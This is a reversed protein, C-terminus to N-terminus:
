QSIVAMKVRRQHQARREARSAREPVVWGGVGVETGAALPGEVGVRVRLEIGPALEAPEAAVPQYPFAAVVTAATGIALRGAPIALSFGGAVAGGSGFSPISYGIGDNTLAALVALDQEVVTERGTPLTGSLFGILRGPLVSVDLRMETDLPSSLDQIVVGTSDRRRLNVSVLGTSLVLNTRTGLAVDIAIPVTLQSLSAVQYPASFRYSEIISGIRLREAAQAPLVSAGALAVALLLPRRM